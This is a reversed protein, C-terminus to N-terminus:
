NTMFDEQEAMVAIAKRVAVDQSNGTIDVEPLLNIDQHGSSEM